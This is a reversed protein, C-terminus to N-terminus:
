HIMNFDLFPITVLPMVWRGVFVNFTTTICLVNGNSGRRLYRNGTVLSFFYWDLFLLSIKKVVVDLFTDITLYLTDTTVM